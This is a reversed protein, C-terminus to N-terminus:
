DDIKVFILRDVPSWRNCQSCRLGSITENCNEVWSACMFLSHGCTKLVIFSADQSPEHKNQAKPHLDGQCPVKKDIEESVILELQEDAGIM